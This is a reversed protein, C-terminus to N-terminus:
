NILYLKKSINKIRFIKIRLSKCESFGSKVDFRLGHGPCFISKKDHFGDILNIGVHPCSASLAHFKSESKFLIIQRNQFKLLIKENNKIKQSKCIYVPEKQPLQKNIVFVRESKIPTKKTKKKLKLNEKRPFSIPSEFINKEIDQASFWSPYEAETTGDYFTPKFPNIRTTIVIRTTNGTNIRTAHLTESNFILLSGNNVAPIIPKPLLQGPAIYNPSRLHKLNKASISPYLIVGNKKTVGAVAYWINIGNYSHGFWTDKHPGHCWVATPLNRQYKIAEKFRKEIQHLNKNKLSNKIQQKASKYHDLNLKLYNAKKLNSKKGIEFPYHIRYIISQDVFFNKRLGLKKKAFLVSFHLFFKDIRKQLIKVLFPLYECPIFNHLNELGSNKVKNACANGMLLKISEFLESTVFGKTELKKFFNNFVAYEYKKSYIQYNKLM